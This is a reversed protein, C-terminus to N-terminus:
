GANGRPHCQYCNASNYVYGRVGSHHPDTQAQTHCSTCVFISYNSSNTHCTSCVGAARGHSTPFWTHSFTAGSWSTTSHCTQCTTPFGAAVHNPNTTSKYVAAHCSLCDTPTGVFINGIHCNTCLVNVHAGTLPFKTATNHNFTAGTWSTTTHCMSCDQPFGAAVHNPNTTGNFNTLHCSICATSLGAFVNNKHCQACSAVKIHAGTLPFPTNNHNFTAGQWNTTSHCLSCDQPFGAAPHSPNTTGNFDTLHCSICATSLGAFVNNKHCQACPAVNIHAGTM